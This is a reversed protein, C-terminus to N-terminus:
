EDTVDIQNIKMNLIDGYRSGATLKDLSDKYHKLADSSNGKANAIDGMLESYHSEFGVKEAVGLLADADDYREAAVLSNVLRLRATHKLGESSANDMVWRLHENAEDQKGQEAKIRALILTSDVAYSTKGYDASIEEALNIADDPKADRVLSLLNEYLASASESQTKTYDQWYNYGFVIVLGAGVGVMISNGNSKWWRRIKAVDEDEVLHTDVM